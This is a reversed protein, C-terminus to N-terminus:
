LSTNSGSLCSWPVQAQLPDRGGIVVFLTRWTWIRLGMVITRDTLPSSIILMANRGEAGSGHLM